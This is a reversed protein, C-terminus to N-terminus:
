YIAISLNPTMEGRQNYFPERRRRRIVAIYLFFAPNRAALQYM